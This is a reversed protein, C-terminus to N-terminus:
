KRKKKQHEPIKHAYDNSYNYFRSTILKGMENSKLYDILLNKTKQIGLDYRKMYGVHCKLKLEKAMKIQQSVQDLSYGIPKEIIINKGKSLAEIALSANAQRPAVIVVTKIDPDNLIDQYNEVINHFKFKNVLFIKASPRDDSIAKVFIDKSKLYFPLYAIQSIMGAGIFGVCHKNMIVENNM